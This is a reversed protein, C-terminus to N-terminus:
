PSCPIGSLAYRSVAKQWDLEVCPGPVAPRQHASSLRPCTLLPQVGPVRRPRRPRCRIYKTIRQVLDAKKGGTYPLGFQKLVNQLEKVRFAQVYLLLPEEM